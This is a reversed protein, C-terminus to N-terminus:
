LEFAANEFLENRGWEKIDLRPRARGPLDAPDEGKRCGIVIWHISVAQFDVNSLAQLEGGEMDLFWIDVKLMGVLPLYTSLPRCRVSYHVENDIDSHCAQQFDKTMAGEVANVPSFGSEVLTVTKEESCLAMNLNTAHPGLAQAVHM